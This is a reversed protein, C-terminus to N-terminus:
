VPRRGIMSVPHRTDITSSGLRVAELEIFRSLLFLTLVALTKLGTRDTIYIPLSNNKKRPRGGGGLTRKIVEFYDKKYKSCYM